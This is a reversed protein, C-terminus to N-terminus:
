NNSIELVGPAAFVNHEKSLKFMELGGDSVRVLIKLDTLRKIGTKISNYPINWRRSLSATTIFPNQFIEDIILLASAPIKKTSKLNDLYKNYLKVIKDSKNLADISQIEIGKLFFKLWGNWDGKKSIDLLHKYYRERNKEFYESLYLLPQSLYKKEILFFTILLRGIRGNGDLFPHIAEFQYHILACQILLPDGTKCHLYEELKYLSEKMIDVPPPVFTATAPNTNAPGIWNQSKRLEGSAAQNGRVDKMLIEHINKILRISIPLERLKTIGFEMAKVYNEVEKVDSGEDLINRSSEFYFLESITARTGEIRSSSVAERRIYQSMLLYPNPLLKGTGSLESLARDANSLCKSLEKDYEIEPPLDNPSFAWYDEPTKICRGARSNKFDAPNM